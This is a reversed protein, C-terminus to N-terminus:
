DNTEPALFTKGAEPVRLAQASFVPLRQSAGSTFTLSRFEIFNGLAQAFWTPELRVNALNHMATTQLIAFPEKTYQSQLLIFGDGAQIIRTAM